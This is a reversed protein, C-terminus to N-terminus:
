AVAVQVAPHTIAELQRLAAPDGFVHAGLLKRDIQGDSALVDPGFAQLVAEYIPQGARYLNHVVADADIYRTAGLALLLKGITTKGCAINGTLGLLHPM